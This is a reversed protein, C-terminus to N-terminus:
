QDSGYNVTGQGQLDGWPPSCCLQSGKAPIDQPSIALRLDAATPLECRRSPPPKALDSGAVGVHDKPDYRPNPSIKQSPLADEPKLTCVPGHVRAAPYWFLPDLVLWSINGWDQRIIGECRAKVQM